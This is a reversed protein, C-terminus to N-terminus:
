TPAFFSANPPRPKASGSLTPPRLDRRHTDSTQVKTPRTQSRGTICSSTCDPQRKHTASRTPAESSHPRVTMHATYIRTPIACTHPDEVMLKSVRSSSPRSPAPAFSRVFSLNLLEHGPQIVDASQVHFSLCYSFQVFLGTAISLRASQLQYAQEFLLPRRATVLSRPPRPRTSLRSLLTFM